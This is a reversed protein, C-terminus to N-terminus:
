KKLIEDYEATLTENKVFDFLTKMRLTYYYNWYKRIASIHSRRATELDARAINLKVVDVKGILFRQLAVEYGKNAVTDALGATKVQEAQLNFELVDQFLEQEFDIRDQEVTARLVERTYQAMQYRGKNSGWDVIPISLGVQVIQRDGPNNYVTAFKDSSQDLGYEAYIRTNFGSEAKAQAVAEDQELLQQQHYLTIHNNQMAQEIATAADIQIDPVEYPVICSIKTAKDLGLFSNLDAQARQIESNSENLSQKARLLELELTLLDDQTVTGVQFRGKGLRYLTDNSALKNQAIKLQIQADVLNFFKTAATISLSELSEILEKKAKEFKVPEIKAEWKLANYGTLYQEYGISIPTSQFSTTETSGMNKVRGLDTSVFFNGGTLAVNQNIELSVDSSLYKSQVYEYQNADFDYELDRSRYFSVPTASLSLSPLRDAKYYRYEWYSARYMNKIRFADISNLSAMEIVDELSLEMPQPQAYTPFAMFVIFSIIAIRRM